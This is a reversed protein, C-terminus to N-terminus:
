SSFRGTLHNRFAPSAQPGLWINWLARNIESGVFHLAKSGDVYLVTGADPQYELVWRKAPSLGAMIKVYQDIRARNLQLAEPDDFGQQLHQRWWDAIRESSLLKNRWVLELRRPTLEDDIREPATGQPVYLGAMFLPLFRHTWTATGALRLPQDFGPTVVATDFRVNRETVQEVQAQAM